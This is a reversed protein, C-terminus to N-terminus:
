RYLVLAYHFITDTTHLEMQPGISNPWGQGIADLLTLWAGTVRVRQRETRLSSVDPRIAILWCGNSLENPKKSTTRVLVCKQHHASMTNYQRIVRTLSLEWCLNVPVRHNGEGSYLTTSVRPPLRYGYVETIMQPLPQHSTTIEM